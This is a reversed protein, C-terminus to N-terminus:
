PGETETEGAAKLFDGFMEMVDISARTPTNAYDEWNGEEGIELEWFDDFAMCHQDDMVELFEAM